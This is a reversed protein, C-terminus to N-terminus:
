GARGAMVGVFGLLVIYGVVLLGLLIMMAVTVAGLERRQREPHATFAWRDVVLTDAVMDHLAQKRLGLGVTFASIVSTIGCTFLHLFFYGAWRGLSRGTAIRQGDSRVVKIGVAMKGLTAQHGSAHMWTFYIAQLMIPLGYLALIFFGGIAGSALDNAVSKMGIGLLVAGAALVGLLVLTMLIGDITSAAVRKWFGAHIVEAGAHVPEFSTLAAVPPAYPSNGAHGDSTSATATTADAPRYQPGDEGGAHFIGAPAQQLALEDSFDRLPQWGALGDRWVLTDLRIGGRHFHWALAEASLPGQRQQRADAYYWISM